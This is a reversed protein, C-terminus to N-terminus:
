RITAFRTDSYFLFMGALTDPNNCSGGRAFYPCLSHVFYSTGAKWENTEYTADGYKYYKNGSDSGESSYSTSYENSVGDVSAFPHGYEIYTTNADNGNYYASVYEWSGGRLDYIGYVNGTSTQNLNTTYSNDIGGGTIYDLDSNKAIETGNRGYKSDALYVVAGWESNKLMHSNLEQSYAKSNTYMNGIIINRWSSYGPKTVVTKDLNEVESLLINGNTLNDTIINSGDSKNALSAEYKGIWIGALENNWGGEYDADTTFAPHVVYEQTANPSESAYKCVTGDAAINGTGNMFKIDITGYATQTNSITTKNEDTYYTIKYAYRPIWVFYSDIGDITVKANAWESTNAGETSIDVYSYGDKTEDAVWTDTNDDFVVLEMNPGINPTNVGKDENFTGDTPPTVVPPNIESDEAMVNAYEQMLRNMDEGEATTSNSAMDKALQAQTILGNDGFAMNLTVTALIIIIIITIVLAVLTIGKQSKAMKKYNGQNNEKRTKKM